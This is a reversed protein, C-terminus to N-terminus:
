SGDFRKRAENEIYRILQIFDLPNMAVRAAGVGDVEKIELIEKINKLNVSGGYLIRINDASTDNYLETILGRIKEHMSRIIDASASDKQGIAWRPEYILIIKDLVESTVGKLGIRLQRRLVKETLGKNLEEKTEGIFMMPIINNRLCALLKRNISEDTESFYMKRESHGLYASDCGLDKLMLPSVEGAYAGFDEWFIDQVGAKINCGGLNQKVYELSLFDAMIYVELVEYDFSILEEKIKKVFDEVDQRSKMYIKWNGFIVMKRFM